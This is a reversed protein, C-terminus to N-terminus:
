LKELILERDQFILKIKSCYIACLIECIKIFKQFYEFFILPSFHIQQGGKNKKIGGTSM